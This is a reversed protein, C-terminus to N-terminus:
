ALDGAAGDGIFVEGDALVDVGEVALGGLEEGVGGAWLHGPEAALVVAQLPQHVRGGCSSQAKSDM